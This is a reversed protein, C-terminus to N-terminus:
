GLHMRRNELCSDGIVVSGEGKHYSFFRKITWKSKNQQTVLVCSKTAKGENQNIFV